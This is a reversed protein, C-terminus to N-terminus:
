CVFGSATFSPISKVEVMQEAWNGKPFQMLPFLQVQPPTGQERTLTMEAIKNKTSLHFTSVAIFIQLM